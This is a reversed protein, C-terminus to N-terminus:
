QPMGSFAIRALAFLAIAGLGYTYVTLAFLSAFKLGDDHVYDEIFVQLGIRFHTFVSIILMAMPIATLPSNLWSGVTAFDFDPLQLLSALLWIMLGLNAIASTRQKVWHDAGHKASGLGRVAGLNTGSGM